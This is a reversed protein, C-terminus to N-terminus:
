SPAMSLGTPTKVRDVRPPTAGPDGPLIQRQPNSISVYPEKSKTRSTYNVKASTPQPEDISSRFKKIQIPKPHCPEDLILAQEKTLQEFCIKTPYAGKPSNLESLTLNDTYSILDNSGSGDGTDMKGYPGREGRPKNKGRKSKKDNGKKGPSKPVNPDSIRDKSKPIQVGVATGEYEIMEIEKSQTLNDIGMINGGSFEPFATFITDKNIIGQYGGLVESRKDNPSSIYDQGKKKTYKSQYSDNYTTFNNYDLLENIPNKLYDNSSYNKMYDENTYYNTAPPNSPPNKYKGSKWPPTNMDMDDLIPTCKDLMYM